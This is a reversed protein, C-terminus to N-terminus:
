LLVTSLSCLVSEFSPGKAFVLGKGGCCGLDGRSVELKNAGLYWMDGTIVGPLFHSCIGAKDGTRSKEESLTPHVDNSRVM